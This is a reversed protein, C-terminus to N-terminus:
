PEPTQDAKLLSDDKKEDHINKKQASETNEEEEKVEAKPAEESKVSEPKPMNKEAEASTSTETATSLSQRGRSEWEDSFHSDDSLTNGTQDMIFDPSEERPKSSADDGLSLPGAYLSPALMVIPVVAVGLFITKYLSSRM